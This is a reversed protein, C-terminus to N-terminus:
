APLEYLVYERQPEINVRRFFAHISNDRAMQAFLIDEYGHRLAANVMSHLGARGVGSGRAEEEPLSGAAFFILRRSMRRRRFFKAASVPNIRGNMARIAEALDYFIVGFSVARGTEDYVFGSVPSALAYDLGSLLTEFEAFPIPTFDPFDGFSRFILDTLTRMEKKLNIKTAPVFRYGRELLIEQRKKWPAILVELKERGKIEISDWIRLPAFGYRAFQEPYFPKNDPEGHFPELDFGKTLFRYGHWFDFNMPGRIRRLGHEARLWDRAADLLAAAVADDNICEYFGVLGVPTQDDDKIGANVMASVRGVVRGDQLALFHRHDNGANRYFFFDPSLRRAMERRFPPITRADHRYHAYGFEIFERALAADFRFSRITM